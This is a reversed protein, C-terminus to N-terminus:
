GYSSYGDYYEKGYIDTLKVGEGEKIILADQEYDKMQTFPLWLYEKSMEILKDPNVM